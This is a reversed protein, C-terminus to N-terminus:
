ISLLAKMIRQDEEACIEKAMRKANWMEWCKSCGAPYKNTSKPKRKAQYKPHQKCKIPLGQPQDNTEILENHQENNM